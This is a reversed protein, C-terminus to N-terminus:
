LRGTDDRYIERADRGRLTPLQTLADRNQTHSM